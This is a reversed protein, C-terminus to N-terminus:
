STALLFDVIRGFASRDQILFMHGGDFFELTSNSLATALSQQNSPPAIGDYRGACVYVPTSVNILREHTDHGMRAELQLRPGLSEVGKNAKMRSLAMEFLKEAAEPNAERWAADFRTDSIETM